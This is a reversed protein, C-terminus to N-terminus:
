TESTEIVWKIQASPWIFTEALLWLQPVLGCAGPGRSEMSITLHAIRLVFKALKWTMLVCSNFDEFACFM